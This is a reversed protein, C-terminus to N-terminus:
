KDRTLNDLSGLFVQFPQTTPYNHVDYVVRVRGSEAVGSGKKAVQKSLSLGIGADKMAAHMLSIINLEIDHASPVGNCFAYIWGYYSFIPELNYAVTKAYELSEISIFQPKEM